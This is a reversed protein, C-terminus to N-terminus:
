HMLDLHTYPTWWRKLSFSSSSTIKLLLLLVLSFFCRQVLATPRQPWELPPQAERHPHGVVCGILAVFLSKACRKPRIGPPAVHTPPRSAQSHSHHKRSTLKQSLSTPQWSAGNTGAEFRLNLTLIRILITRLSTGHPGM